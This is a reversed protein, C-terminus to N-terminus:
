TLIIKLKKPIINLTKNLAILKINGNKIGIAPIANAAYKIIAAIPATPLRIIPAIVLMPPINTDIAIIPTTANTITFKPGTKIFISNDSPPPIRAKNPPIIDKINSIISPIPDM